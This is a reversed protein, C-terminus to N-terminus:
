LVVCGCKSLKNKKSVKSDVFPGVEDVGQISQISDIKEVESDTSTEFYESLWKKFVIANLAACIPNEYVLKHNHCFIKKGSTLVKLSPQNCFQIFSRCIFLINFHFSFYYM